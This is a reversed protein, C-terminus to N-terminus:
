SKRGHARCYIINYCICNYAQRSNFIDSVYGTVNTGVDRMFSYKQVLKKAVETCFKKDPKPMFTYMTTMLDRSIASRVSPSLLRRKEAESSANIAAMVNPRWTDPITFQRSSTSPISVSPSTHVSSSPTSAVSVTDDDGNTKKQSSSTSAPPTVPASSNSQGDPKRKALEQPLLMEDVCQTSYGNLIITLRM